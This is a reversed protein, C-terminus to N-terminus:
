AEQLDNCLCIIHVLEKRYKAVCQILIESVIDKIEETSKVESNLSDSGVTHIKEKRIELYVM